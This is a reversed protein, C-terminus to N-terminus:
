GYRYYRGDGDAYYVMPDILVRAAEEFQIVDKSNRIKQILDNKKIWPHFPNLNFIRYLDELCGNDVGNDLKQLVTTKVDQLTWGEDM